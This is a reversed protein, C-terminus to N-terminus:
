GGVACLWSRASRNCRQKNGKMSLNPSAKALRQEENACIEDKGGGHRIFISTPRGVSVLVTVTVLV